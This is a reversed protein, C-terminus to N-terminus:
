EARCEGITRASHVGALDDASAAADRIAEAVLWAAPVGVMDTEARVEGTALVFVTDGDMTTHVPDIARAYGDHAMAAVKAAQAKDIDANTIICTITTNAVPSTSSKGFGSEAAQALEAISEAPHLVRGGDLSLVGSIPSGDPGMVTGLANVASIAVISIDGFTAGAIGLGSKMMRAAGATKGVTAGTGAGVNGHACHSIPGADKCARYGMEADPYADHRGIGLDFLAAGCVIPVNIVGTECGAGMEALHRMVGSCADLGFASGGTLVIAHVADATCTPDLLDTERTAPAGGRVDVAGMAGRPCLIVTCGTADSLNQAHGVSVGEIDPVSMIDFGEFGSM